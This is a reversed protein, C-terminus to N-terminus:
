ALALLYLLRNVQYGRCTVRVNLSGTHLHPSFLDQRQILVHFGRLGGRFIQSLAECSDGVPKRLSSAPFLLHRETIPRIPLPLKEAILLCVELLDHLVLSCASGDLSSIAFSRPVRRTHM